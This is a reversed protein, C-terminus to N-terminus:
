DRYIPNSMLVRADDFLEKLSPGGESPWLPKNPEDYPLEEGLDAAHRNAIRREHNTIVQVLELALASEDAASAALQLDYLRDILNANDM